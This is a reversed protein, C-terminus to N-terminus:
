RLIDSVPTGTLTDIKDNIYHWRNSQQYWPLIDEIVYWPKAIQNENKIVGSLKMWKGITM